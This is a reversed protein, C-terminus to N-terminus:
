GLPVRRCVYDGNNLYKSADSVMVGTEGHSNPTAELVEARGDGDRDGLYIVV